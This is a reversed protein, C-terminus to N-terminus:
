KCDVSVLKVLGQMWYMKGRRSIVSGAYKQFNSLEIYSM